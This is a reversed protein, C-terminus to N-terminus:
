RVSFRDVHKLLHCCNNVNKDHKFFSFISNKVQDNLQVKKHIRNKRNWKLNLKIIKIFTNLSKVPKEMIKLEHEDLSDYELFIEKTNDGIGFYVKRQNFFELLARFREVLQVFETTKDEPSFDSVIEVRKQIDEINQPGEDEVTFKTMFFLRIFLQINNQTNSFYEFVRSEQVTFVTTPVGDLTHVFSGMKEATEKIIGPSTIRGPIYVREPLAYDGVIMIGNDVAVKGFEENTEILVSSPIFGHGSVICGLFFVHVGEMRKHTILLDQRSVMLVVAMDDYKQTLGDFISFLSLYSEKELEKGRIFMRKPIDDRSQTYTMDKYKYFIKGQMAYTCYGEDLYLKEPDIVARSFELRPLIPPEQGLDVPPEVAPDLEIPKQVEM